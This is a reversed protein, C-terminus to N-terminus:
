QRSISYIWISDAFYKLVPIFNTLKKALESAYIILRSFKPLLKADSAQVGIGLFCDVTLSTKYFYQRFTKSMMRPTWYRVEFGQPRHFGRKVQHYLCRLGFANPLQILCTGNPKLVRKAESITQIADQYKFHQIVSYSFVTNVTHNRFPLNRADGVIFRIPLGLQAAVRRAALVAGLSPDIGVPLYGKRAAAICWRGWSCGIDLFMQGSGEPLILSPIPYTQLHGVLKKYLIGNTAAVLYSVVPDIKIDASASLSLIGNREQDSIGLTSLYYKDNTLLESRRLRSVNVTASMVGLTELSEELLMIPIGDIVSYHHGAECKLCGEYYILKSQDRPCVLTNLFWPDLQESNDMLNLPQM